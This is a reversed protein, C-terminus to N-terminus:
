PDLVKSPRVKGNAAPSAAAAPTVSFKEDDSSATSTKTSSPSPKSTKLSSTTSPSTGNTLEVVRNPEELKAKKPAPPGSDGNADQKMSPDKGNSMASVSAEARGQFEIDLKARKVQINDSSEMKRKTMLSADSTGVHTKSSPAVNNKPETTRKVLRPDGPCYRPVVKEKAVTEVKSISKESGSGKSDSPPSGQAVSHLSAVLLKGKYELGSATKASQSFKPSTEPIASLKSSDDEKRSSLGGNESEKQKSSGVDKKPSDPAIMPSRVIRKNEGSDGGYVPKNDRESISPLAASKGTPASVSSRTSQGVVPVESKKLDVKISTENLEKAGSLTEKEANGVKAVIKQAKDEKRQIPEDSKTVEEASSLAEVEDAGRKESQETTSSTKVEVTKAIVAKEKENLAPTHKGEDSKGAQEMSCSRSSTQASKSVNSKNVEDSPVVAKEAEKVAGSMTLKEAQKSMKVEESTKASKEAEKVASSSTIKEAQKSTGSKKVEESTKACKEAEKVTSSSTIKEAQKSTGSTKVEESTKVCKEGGKVASSLTIKEAQKSTGAKRVEESTKACKETEKVASSSTIKEAQKSTGAKKVEESTKACKEAENVASSSTIKEAQQQMTSKKKEFTKPSKKTGEEQSTMTLNDTQKSTASIKAEQSAEASKERQKFESSMSPKEAQKPSVFKKAEESSVRPKEAQKPLVFKKVEESSMSSKEALKVPSSGTPKESQKMAEEGPLFTKETSKSAIAKRVESTVISKDKQLQSPVIPKDPATLKKVEEGPLSSKETKKSSLIKAEEAQKLVAVDFPGVPESSSLKKEEKSSMSSKEAGKSKTTKKVEESSMTPNEAQKVASLRSVEEVSVIVKETQKAGTLKVEESPMVPKEAKEIGAGVKSQEVSPSKQVEESPLPAQKSATEKKLEKAPVIPNKSTFSKKVEELMPGTTKCSPETSKSKKGEELMPRTTKCSPETSTSKKGEEVMPGTTKCSPETSTSKKMEKVMPGTTKCSLKTSTSKKMEKVMPGTTKCSPETSTLKKGGEATQAVTTWKKVEQCVSTKKVAESSTSEKVIKALAENKPKQPSALKKTEVVAKESKDFKETVQSARPQKPVETPSEKNAQNVVLSSLKKNPSQTRGPREPTKSTVSKLGSPLNRDSPAVPNPVFSQSEKKPDVLEGSGQGDKKPENVAKSRENERPEKEQVENATPKRVKTGSGAQTEVSPSPAESKSEGGRETEPLLTSIREKVAMPPPALRGKDKHLSSIRVQKLTESLASRKNSNDSHSTVKHEEGETPPLILPSPPPPRVSATSWSVTTCTTLQPQALSFVPPTPSPTSHTTVSTTTTPSLLSSVSFSNPSSKKTTPPPTSMRPCSPTSPPTSHVVSASFPRVIGVCPSSPTHPPDVSSTVLSPPGSSMPKPLVPRGLKPSDREKSLPPTQPPQRQSPVVGKKGSPRRVPSAGAERAPQAPPPTSAPSSHQLLSSAYPNYLISAGAGPVATPHFPSSPRPTQQPITATPIGLGGIVSWPNYSFPYATAAYASTAPHLYSGLAYPYLHPAVAPSSYPAYFPAPPTQHHFGSSTSMLPISPISSAASTTSSSAVQAEPKSPKLDSNATTTPVPPPPPPTPEAKKEEKPPRINKTEGVPKEKQLPEAKVPSPPAPPDAKEMLGSMRLLLDTTQTPDSRAAAATSVLPPPTKKSEQTREQKTQPVASPPPPSKKATVSVIPAPPVSPSSVLSSTMSTASSNSPSPPVRLISMDEKKPQGTVMKTPKPPQRDKVLNWTKTPSPTPARGKSPSPSEKREISVDPPPITVTSPAKPPSTSIEVKPAPTLPPAKAQPPPRPPPAPQGKRKKASTATDDDHKRPQTSTKSATSTSSTSTSATSPSSCSVMFAPIPPVRSTPTPRGGLILNPASSTPSKTPPPSTPERKVTVTDPSTRRKGKAGESLSPSRDRKSQGGSKRKFRAAANVVPSTPPRRQEQSRAADRKTMAVIGNLAIPAQGEELRPLRPSIYAEHRPPAPPWPSIPSSPDEPITYNIPFPDESELGSLPKWRFRVVVDMLTLQDDLHIEDHSLHVPHRPSLAFKSRILRKLHAMTVLVPCLLYRVEPASSRKKNRVDEKYQISICINDDSRFVIYRSDSASGNEEEDSPIDDDDEESEEDSSREDSGGIGNVLAPESKISSCSLRREKSPQRDKASLYRTKRKKKPFSKLSTKSATAGKTKEARRKERFETYFERRRRMEDQFLGPVLKYVVDQLQKDPRINLLPKARHIQVDCIPCNKSTELYRVICARCFSHLCEVITTADIFYGGCIPCTIHENVENLKVRTAPHSM